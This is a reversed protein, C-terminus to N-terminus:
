RLQQKPMADYLCLCDILGHETPRGAQFTVCYLYDKATNFITSTGARPEAPRRPDDINYVNNVNSATYRQRTDALKVTAQLTREPCVHHSHWDGNTMAAMNVKAAQAPFGKVVGKKSAMGQSHPLHPLADDKLSYRSDSDFQNRNSWAGAPWSCQAESWM